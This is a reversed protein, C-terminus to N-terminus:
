RLVSRPRLAVAARGTGAWERYPDTSFFSPVLARLHSFRRM